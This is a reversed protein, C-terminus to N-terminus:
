FASGASQAAPTSTGTGGLVGKSAFTSPTKGCVSGGSHSFKSTRGTINAAQVSGVFIMFAVIVKKM